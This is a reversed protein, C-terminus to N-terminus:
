NEVKNATRMVYLCPSEYMGFRSEFDEDSSGFHHLFDGKKLWSRYLNRRRANTPDLRVDHRFFRNFTTCSIVVYDVQDCDGFFCADAAFGAMRLRVGNPNKKPDNRSEFRRLLRGYSLRSGPELYNPRPNEEALLRRNLRSFADALVLANTLQPSTTMYHFLQDRTDDRIAKAITISSLATQTGAFIMPIVVLIGVVSLSRSRSRWVEGASILFAFPFMVFLPFAYRPIKIPAWQILAGYICISVLSFLLLAFPSNRCGQMRLLILFLPIALPVALPVAHLIMSLYVKSLKGFWVGHHTGISHNVEFELGNLFDGFGFVLRYNIILTALVFPWALRGLDAWRERGRHYCYAVLFVAVFVLGIYKSSLVVACGLGGIWPAIRSQRPESREYTLALALVTMGFLLFIDEKLYRGTVLVASNTAFFGFFIWSWITGFLRAGVISLLFVAAAAYANSIFRGIQVLEPKKSRPFFIRAIQLNTLLLQPHNWNREGSAIQNIKGYEDPHSGAPQQSLSALFVFYLLAAGLLLITNAWLWRQGDRLSVQSVPGLTRRHQTTLM